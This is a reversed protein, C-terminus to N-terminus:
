QLQLTPLHGAARAMENVAEIFARKQEVFSKNANNRIVQAVHNSKKLFEKNRYNPCLEYLLAKRKLSTDPNIYHCNIKMKKKLAIGPKVPDLKNVNGVPKGLMEKLLNIEKVNNKDILVADTNEMYELDNIGKIVFIWNAFLIFKLCM